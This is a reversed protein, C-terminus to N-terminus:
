CKARRENKEINKILEKEVDAGMHHLMNMCVLIIDSAEEKADGPLGHIVAQWLEEYEERIKRLFEGNATHPQILGRAVISEYNRNILEKLKDGKM